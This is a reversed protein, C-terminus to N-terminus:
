IQCVHQKLSGHRGFLMDTLDKNIRLYIKQRIILRYSSAIVDAMATESILSDYWQLDNSQSVGWVMLKNETQKPILEQLHLYGHM